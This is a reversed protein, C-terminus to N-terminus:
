VATGLTKVIICGVPANLNHAITRASNNGTYSVIDFFGAAELFTWAVYDESNANVTTNAGLSFGTSNFASLTTADTAEGLTDNSQLYKTAGRVTDFLRHSAGGTRQKIWTLSGAANNKRTVISQTGGNGTYLTTSFNPNDQNSNFGFPFVLM